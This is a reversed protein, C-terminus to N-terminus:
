AWFLATVSAASARQSVWIPFLTILTTIIRASRKHVTKQVSTPASTINTM